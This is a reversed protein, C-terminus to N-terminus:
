ETIETGIGKTLFHLSCHINQGHLVAWTAAWCSLGRNMKSGETSASATRASHTHTHRRQLAQTCTRFTHTTNQSHTSTHRDIDTYTETETHWGSHQTFPPCVNAESWFIARPPWRMDRNGHTNQGVCWDWFGSKLRDSLSQCSHHFCHIWYWSYCVYIDSM